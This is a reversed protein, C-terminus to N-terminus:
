PLVVLRKEDDMRFHVKSEELAKIVESLNLNRSIEGFFRMEPVGKEYVVEIDYWRSLERMVDELKVGDFNFVGNKWAMVKDTNALEVKISAAENRVAGQMIQAQQGPILEVENISNRYGAALSPSTRVRVSGELLTTKIAPGDDYANVNFHTGLVEIEAGNGIKVHFPRAANKAVEFYVEGSAEVVRTSGSFVAPFTISSAANLWVQTGDSLTVNFQRGKPTGIKNIANAAAAQTPDYALQGDKLIIKAGSQNAVLGNGLSDLVVQTGDALTLIAGEKGPAVNIAKHESVKALVPQNKDSVRFLFFAGTLLVFVVSAAAWMRRGSFRKRSDPEMTVVKAESNFIARLVAETPEVPMVDQIKGAYSSMILSKLKEENSPDAMLVFLEEQESTSIAKAYYQEFLYALRENM